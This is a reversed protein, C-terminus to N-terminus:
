RLDKTFDAMVNELLKQLRLYGASINEPFFAIPLFIISQWFVYRDDHSYKKTKQSTRFMVELSLEKQIEARYPIIALTLSSTLWWLRQGISKFEGVSSLVFRLNVECEINEFDSVYIKEFYGSKQVEKQFLKHITTNVPYQINSLMNQHKIFICASKYKANSRVIYGHSTDPYTKADFVACGVMVFFMFSIVINGTRM